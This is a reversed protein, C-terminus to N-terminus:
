VTQNREAALVAASLQTIVAEAYEVSLIIDIAELKGPSTPVAAPVSLYIDDDIATATPQDAVFFFSAGIEQTEAANTESM